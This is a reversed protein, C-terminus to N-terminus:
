EPPGWNVTPVSVARTNLRNPDVQQPGLSQPKGMEPPPPPGFEEEGDKIIEENKLGEWYM